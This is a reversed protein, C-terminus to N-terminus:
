RLWAAVDDVAVTGDRIAMSVATASPPFEVVLDAAVIASLSPAGLRLHYPGSHVDLVDSIARHTMLGIGFRGTALADDTKTTLWPAALSLVDALTIHRGDHTGILHGDVLQFEVYSAGADDANQIIEALVQLPDGSLTQAGAKAGEIMDKVTGPLEEFIRAFEEVARRAEEDTTAEFDIEARRDDFLIAAAAEPALRGDRTPDGEPRSSAGAQHPDTGTTPTM